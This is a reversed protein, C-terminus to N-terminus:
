SRNNFAAGFRSLHVRCPKEILHYTVMSILLSSIFIVTTKGTEINSFLFELQNVLLSHVLYLSYSIQGLYHIPKISLVRSVVNTEDVLSPIILACLVIIYVDVQRFVLFAALTFCLAYSVRKSICKGNAFLVYATVGLSYDALCRLISKLGGSANVSFALIENSVSLYILSAIAAIVIPIIYKTKSITMLMAPFLLYAFMETSISWSSAIYNFGFLSQLLLGNILFSLPSETIGHEVSALIVSAVYLFIYVPYIRIFRKFMFYSYNGSGKTSFENHVMSMIFGSLIFFFDVALYGNTLFDDIRGGFNREVLHFTVVYFAAVGRVGTLSKIEM